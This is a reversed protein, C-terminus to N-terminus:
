ATHKSRIGGLQHMAMGAIDSEGCYYGYIGPTCDLGESCLVAEMPSCECQGFSIDDVKVVTAGNEPICQLDPNGQLQLTYLNGLGNFL